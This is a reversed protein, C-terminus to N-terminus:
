VGPPLGQRQQNSANRSVVIRFAIYGGLALLAVTVLSTGEEGDEESEGEEGASEDGESSSSEPVKSPVPITVPEARDSESSEGSSEDAEEVPGPVPVAESRGSESSSESGSSESSSSATSEATSPGSGPQLEERHQNGTEGKHAEDTKRSIHAEVSSPEGRYKGCL